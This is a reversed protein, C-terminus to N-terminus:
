FWYRMSVQIDSHTVRMGDIKHDKAQIDNLGLCLRIGASFQRESGFNAGWGINFAAHTKKMSDSADSDEDVKTVISQGPGNPKTTISGERHTKVKGVLFGFQPGAEVYVIDKVFCARAMIPIHIYNLPYKTEINEFITADYVTTGTMYMRNSEDSIGTHEFYVEGTVRLFKWVPLEATAGLLVQFGAQSETEGEYKSDAMGIGFGARAGFRLKSFDVQAFMATACFLAMTALLIKKM